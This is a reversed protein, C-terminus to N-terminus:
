LISLLGVSPLFGNWSEPVTHIFFPRRNPFILAYKSLPSYTKKKKRETLVDLECLPLYHRCSPKPFSQVHHYLKLRLFLISAKKTALYVLKQLHEM